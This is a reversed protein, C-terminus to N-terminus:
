QVVAGQRGLTAPIKRPTPHSSDLLEVRTLRLFSSGEALTEVQLTALVGGGSRASAPRLQTVVFEITGVENDVENVLVFSNVPDLFDGPLIQVGPASERPDADLVQVVTPDFALQLRVSYLDSVEQVAVHMTLVEGIAGTPGGKPVLGIQTASAVRNALPRAPGERDGQARASGDWPGPAEELWNFHVAVIDLINILDDGTIDAREDWPGDMPTTNWAQGILNGDMDDIIDDQNVDGGLLTVPPLAVTGEAVQVDRWSRLYCARSATVTHGGPVVSEFGYEGSEAAAICQGDLCVQAGSNSARREL